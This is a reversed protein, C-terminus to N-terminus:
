RGVINRCEMSVKERWLMLGLGNKYGHGASETTDMMPVLHKMPSMRTWPGAKEVWGDLVYVWYGKKLREYLWPEGSRPPVYEMDIPYGMGMVLNLPLPPVEDLGVEAHMDAWERCVRCVGPEPFKITQAPTGFPPWQRAKRWAHMNFNYAVPNEAWLRMTCPFNACNLWGLRIPPQKAHGCTHVALYYADFCM